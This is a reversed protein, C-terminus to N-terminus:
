STFPRFLRKALSSRRKHVDARVQVTLTQGANAHIRLRGAYVRNVEMLSSDVEFAFPAQQPGSVSPTVVKLWPADSEIEAYVWKRTSTFLSVQWRVVEPYVPAIRVEPESVQVVPPKSLGMCEFFQQVAAVGRAVRGPVPYKWGNAKFWQAVEGSEIAGVAAKPQQRMREAMERPSSVGQFPARHFAQGSLELRVPIEVVGGNTIFTLKAAYRQGTVLGATDIFLNVDQQKTAHIALRDAQLDTALRLWRPDDENEQTLTLTGRLAGTGQNLVGLLVYRTEGAELKGLILRRPNLDLRPKRPQTAPLGSLFTTLGLDEDPQTAAEKAVLALDLRGISAMFKAFAGERLLTRGVTWDDHCNQVLEDFTDCRKGSPFFFPTLLRGARDATAGGGHAPVLEAGDHHCFVAAAPNARKCRPCVHM